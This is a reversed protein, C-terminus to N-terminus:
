PGLLGGPDHVVRGGVITFAPTLEALDDVDATLPDAPYAVLDALKGPTISGLRDAEHLLRATGMTYLELATAV